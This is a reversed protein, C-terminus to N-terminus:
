RRKTTRSILGCAMVSYAHLEILSFGARVVWTHGLYEPTDTDEVPSDFVENTGDVLQQDYIHIM